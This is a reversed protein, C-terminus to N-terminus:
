LAFLANATSCGQKQPRHYFIYFVTSIRVGLTAAGVVLISRVDHAVSALAANFLAAFSIFGLVLFINAVEWLPTFLRGASKSSDLKPWLRLLAVGFEMASLWAYVSFMLGIIIVSATIMSSENMSVSLIM